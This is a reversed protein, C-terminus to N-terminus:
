LTAELGLEQRLLKHIFPVSINRDWKYKDRKDGNRIFISKRFAEMFIGCITTENGLTYNKVVQILDQKAGAAIKKILNRRLAMRTVQQAFVENESERDTVVTAKRPKIYLIGEADEGIHLFLRLTRLYSRLTRETIGMVAKCEKYFSAARRYYNKRKTSIAGTLMLMYVLLVKENAKLSYFKQDAFLSLGTNLYGEQYAAEYSFDNDIIIVTWDSYTEKWKRIFGKEELSKLANYFAQDSAGTDRMFDRYYLGAAVGDASQRRSIWFLLNLEESTLKAHILKKIIQNKLKRM